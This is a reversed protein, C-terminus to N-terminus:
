EATREERFLGFDADAIVCEFRAAEDDIGGAPQIGILLRLDHGVGADGIPGIDPPLKVAITDGSPSNSPVGNREPSPTTM